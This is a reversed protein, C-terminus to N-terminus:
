VPKHYTVWTSTKGNQFLGELFTVSEDIVVIAKELCIKSTIRLKFQFNIAQAIDKTAICLYNVSTALKAFNEKISKKNDCKSFNIITNASFLNKLAEKICSIAMSNTVSENIIKLTVELTSCSELFLTYLNDFQYNLKAQLARYYDNGDIFTYKNDLISFIDNDLNNKFRKLRVVLGFSYRYNKSILKEIRQYNSETINESLISTFNSFELVRRKIMKSLNKFSQISKEINRESLEQSDEGTLIINISDITKTYNM